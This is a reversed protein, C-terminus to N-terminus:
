DVKPWQGGFSGHFWQIGSLGAQRIARLDVTIGERSINGGIFHFWTEPHYLMPPHQFAVADAESFPARVDADAPAIDVQAVMTASFMLSTLLLLLNKM